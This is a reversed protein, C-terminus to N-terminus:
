DGPAPQVAKLNDENGYVEPTKGEVQGDCLRVNQSARIIAMRDSLDVYEDIDIYQM